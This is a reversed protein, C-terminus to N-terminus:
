KARLDTEHERLQRNTKRNMNRHKRVTEMDTRKNKNEKERRHGYRREDYMQKREIKTTKDTMREKRLYTKRVRKTDNEPTKGNM